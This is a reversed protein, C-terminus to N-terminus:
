DTQEDAKESRPSCGTVRAAYSGSRPALGAWRGRPAMQYVNLSLHRCLVCVRAEEGEESSSGLEESLIDDIREADGQLHATRVDRLADHAQLFNEHRVEYAAAWTIPFTTRPPQASETFVHQAVWSRVDENSM